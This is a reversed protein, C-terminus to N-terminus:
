GWFCSMKDRDVVELAEELSEVEARPQYTHWKLDARKWHLKWVKRSRVYKIKAVPTEITDDPERWHPRVEFIEVSQDKDDIRYSLDVKDRIHEPPRRRHIFSEVATETTMHEQDNFSM